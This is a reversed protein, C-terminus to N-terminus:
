WTLQILCRNKTRQNDNTEVIKKSNWSLPLIRCGSEFLSKKSNAFINKLQKNEIPFVWIRVNRKKTIELIRRKDM